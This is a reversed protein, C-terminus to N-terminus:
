SSSTDKEIENEKLDTIMTSNSISSSNNSKTFKTSQDNSQSSSSNIMNNSTQSSSPCSNSIQPTSPTTNLVRKILNSSKMTLELADMWINGIRESPALFILYFTPLLFVNLTSEGDPGQSLCLWM